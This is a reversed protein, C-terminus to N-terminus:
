QADRTVRATPNAKADRAIASVRIEESTQTMIVDLADHISLMISDIIPVVDAVQVFSVEPRAM